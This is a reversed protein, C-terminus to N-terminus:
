EKYTANFIYEVNDLYPGHWEAESCECYVRKLSDILSVVVANFKAGRSIYIEELNCWNEYQMFSFSSNKTLIATKVYQVIAGDESQAYLATKGDILSRKAQIYTEVTIAEGYPASLYADHTM